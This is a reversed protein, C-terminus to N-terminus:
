IRGGCSFSAPARSQGWTSFDVLAVSNELLGVDLLKLLKRNKEQLKLREGDGELWGYCRRTELRSEM